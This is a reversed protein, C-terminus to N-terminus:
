IKKKYECQDILLKRERLFLNNTYAIFIYYIM